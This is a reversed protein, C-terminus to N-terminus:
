CFEVLTMSLLTRHITSGVGPRSLQKIVRDEASHVVRDKASYKASDRTRTRVMIVEIIKTKFM